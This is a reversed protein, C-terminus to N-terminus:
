GTSRYASDLALAGRLQALGKPADDVVSLITDRENPSLPLLTSQEEINRLIREALDVDAARGVRQLLDVLTRLDEDGIPIGFMRM